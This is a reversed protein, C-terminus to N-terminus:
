YTLHNQETELHFLHPMFDKFMNKFKKYGMLIDYETINIPKEQTFFEESLATFVRESIILTEKYDQIERATAPKPKNSM